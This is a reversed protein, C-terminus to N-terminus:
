AHIVGTEILGVLRRSRGSPKIGMEQSIGRWTRGSKISYITQSTVGYLDGIAHLTAKGEVLLVCIARVQEATLKASTNAEGRRVNSRAMRSGRRKRMLEVLGARYAREDVREIFYRKNQMHGKAIADANNELVTGAFLHAPNTCRPNDCEHCVVLWPPIEGNHIVFSVRHARLSPGDPLNVRPYARQEDGDWKWCDGASDGKIVRLWFKSVLETSLEIPRTEIAYDHPHISM